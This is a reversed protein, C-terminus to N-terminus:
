LAARLLRDLPTLAAEAEASEEKYGHTKLNEVHAIRTFRPSTAPDNIELRRYAEEAGPLDFAGSSLKADLEQYQKYLDRHQQARRISGLTLNIAQLLAGLAAAIYAIEDVRKFLSFIVSSFLVLSIFTTADNLLLFWREVLMHYRAGFRVDM